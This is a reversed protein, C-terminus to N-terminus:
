LAEGPALRDAEAWLEDLNLTLGECGPVRLMGDAASAAVVYRREPTLEFMEVLRAEPDILWYYGIGFAAYERMKDIRDRKHDQPSPSIVEVAVNPPVSIMGHRPPVFGSAFFMTVDPMRGRQADLAYKVGSTFVFGGREKAWSRLLAALFLVVVEHLPCPMEEEVLQGNMWEGTQDEPLMAWQALTLSLPFPLTRASQVPM